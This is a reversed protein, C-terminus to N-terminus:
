KEERESGDSSEEAPEAVPAEAQDADPKGDEKPKDKSDGKESGKEEGKEEGKESAVQAPDAAAPAPDEVAPPAAPDDSPLAGPDVVAPDAAAPAGETDAAEPNVQEGAEVPVAGDSPAQGGAEAAAAAEEAAEKKKKAEREMRKKRRAEKKKQRAARKIQRGRKKTESRIAKNAARLQKEVETARETDLESSKRFRELYISAQRLRQLPDIMAKDLHKIAIGDFLDSGVEQKMDDISVDPCLEKGEIRKFDHDLYLIGLNYLTSHRDPNEELIKLFTSRSSAYDGSDRESVAKLVWGEILDPRLVTARKSLVLAKQANGRDLLVRAYNILVEPKDPLGAAAKELYGQARRVRAEATLKQAGKAYKLYALAALYNTMGNTEEGPVKLANGLVLLCLGMKERKCFSWGLVQMAAVNVEDKKLTKMSLDAAQEYRGLELLMRGYANRLDLVRDHQDMAGKLLQEAGEKDGGRFKAWALAETAGHFVSGFQDHVQQLRNMGGAKDGRRMRCLAANYHAFYFTPNAAAISEFETEAGAPDDLAKKLAAEFRTKAAEDPLLPEVLKGADVRGIDARAPGADPVEAVDPAVGADPAELAAQEIPGSDPAVVPGAEAEMVPADDFSMPEPAAPKPSACSAILMFWPLLRKM